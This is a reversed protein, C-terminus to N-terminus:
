RRIRYWLLGIAEHAAVSSRQLADASPLFALPTLEGSTSFSTAAVAVCFGSRQFAETARRMHWAQTVLLIDRINESQLIRASHLANEYTNNSTPELWKVAVSFDSELASKMLFAEALPRGDPKGGSVLIPVGTERHLRAALRLRELGNATVTDGGYEPADYYTGAGLVVIAQPTCSTYTAPSPEIQKIIWRSFLPTSCTWPLLIAFLIMTKATTVFKTRLLASGIGGLLFCCLPPLFLTAVLNTTLWAMPTSSTLARLRLLIFM